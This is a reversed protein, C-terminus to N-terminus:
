LSEEEGVEHNELFRLHEEGPLLDKLTIKEFFGDVVLQLSRLLSRVSCDSTHICNMEVGRHRDCYKPDFLRGGLTSLVDGVVIKEPPHSLEYGGAQGRVSKVFGEHRLIRMLKAVHAITLGEARSIDSISVTGGKGKRALQLLCRLGYEETATFKM